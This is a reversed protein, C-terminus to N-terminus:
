LSPKMDAQRRALAKQAEGSAKMARSILSGRSSKISKSSSTSSLSSGGSNPKTDAGKDTTYVSFDTNRKAFPSPLSEEDALDWVPAPPLSTTMAAALGEKISPNTPITTTTGVPLPVTLTSASIKPILSGTAPPRSPQAISRRRVPRHRATVHSADVSPAFEYPGKEWSATTEAESGNNSVNNSPLRSPGARGEDDGNAEEEGSDDSESKTPTPIVTGSETLIIGKMASGLDTLSKSPLLRRPTVEQGTQPLPPLKHQSRLRQTVRPALAPLPPASPVTVILKKNIPIKSPTEDNELSYLLQENV